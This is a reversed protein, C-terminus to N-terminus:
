NSDDPTCGLRTTSEIARHIAQSLEERASSKLVYGAAGVNQAERRYGSAGHMTVFICKTEPRSRHIARVAEIGNLKPMSIDTVIVDPGLRFAAEVLSQGDSVIGVVEFETQLLKHLSALMDLDDDALLVRTRKM